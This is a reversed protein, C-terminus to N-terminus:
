TTALQHLQKSSEYIEKLVKNLRSQKTSHFLQQNHILDDRCKIYMQKADQQLLTKITGIVRLWRKNNDQISDYSPDIVHDFTRYGLQRLQTLSHAPAFL